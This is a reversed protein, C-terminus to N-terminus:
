CHVFCDQSLDEFIPRVHLTLALLTEHADMNFDLRRYIVICFCPDMLLTQHPHCIPFHPTKMGEWEWGATGM